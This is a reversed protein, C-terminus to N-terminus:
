SVNKVADKGKPKHQITHAIVGAAFACGALIHVTRMVIVGKGIHVFVGSVVLLLISTLLLGDVIRIKRPMYQMKLMNRCSHKVVIILLMCGAVMHVALGTMNVFFLVACLILTIILFIIDKKKKM